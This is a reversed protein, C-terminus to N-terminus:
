FNDPLEKLKEVWESFHTCKGIITDIGIQSAISGGMLPKRYKPIISEIRKSPATKPDDNILEPNSFRNTVDQLSQMIQGNDSYYHEFGKLDSFLLAEFEHLQIFPIFKHHNVEKAFEGEIHRIKVYPDPFEAKTEYGPFDDPLGYYDFFTTVYISTDRVLKEIDGKVQSYSIIGGKFNNGGKVIKTNLITPTLFIGIDSLYPALLNKIFVEETQGEVLIVIKKM